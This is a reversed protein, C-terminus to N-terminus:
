HAGSGGRGSRVGLAPLLVDDVLAVATPEDLGRHELVVQRFAVSPVISAILDVPVSPDVDGRAVAREIVTRLARAPPRGIVETAAGRVEGDRSAEALVNALVLAARADPSVYHRVCIVLDERLSGEDPVTVDAQLHEAAAVVLETKGAWRRYIAAKGTGARRAIEEVRAAAFGSEVVVEVASDLIARELEPDRPRGVPVAENRM